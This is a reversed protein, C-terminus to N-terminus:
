HTMFQDAVAGVAQHGGDFLFKSNRACRAALKRGMKGSVLQRCPTSEYTAERLEPFIEFIEDRAAPQLNKIAEPGTFLSEALAGNSFVIEHQDFLIHWYDVLTVDEAVDIGDIELLQKAAVLVEYQGFMRKSIKSNVLVRHQPSVLLDKSPLGEGLANACIRIPMLNPHSILTAMSLTRCGIWRIPQYGNDLTLVNDGVSLRSIPVDGQITTIVTDGAFCVVNTNDFTLSTAPVPAGGTQLTLSNGATWGAEAANLVGDEALDARLWGLPNSFQNGPNNANWVALTTSNYYASLDVFDNNSQNGDDIAGTNGSNFDTIVDAGSSVIFTDNGV